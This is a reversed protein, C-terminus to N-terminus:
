SCCRRDLGACGDSHSIGCADAIRRNNEMVPLLYTTASDGIIEELQAMTIPSSSSSLQPILRHFADVVEATASSVPAVQVTTM